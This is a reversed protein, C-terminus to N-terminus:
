RRIPLLTVEDGKLDGTAELVVGVAALNGAEGKAEFEGAALPVGFNGAEGKEDLEGLVDTGTVAVLEDDVYGFGNETGFSFFVVGKGDRASDGKFLFAMLQGSSSPIGAGSALM